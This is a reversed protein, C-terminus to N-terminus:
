AAGRRKLEKGAINNVVTEVEEATLPPKCRVLNWCTLLELTAVPDINRRLLHGALQAISDNRYGEGVGQHLLNRWESAPKASKTPKDAILAVLWAPMEAGPAISIWEYYSGSEHRSPPAIAYGGLGRIDLGAAIGSVSNRIVVNTPPRLYVHEGGSGSRARRTKPLAGHKRELEALSADGSHRPDVDLVIM